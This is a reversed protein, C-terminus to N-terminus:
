NASGANFASGLWDDHQSWTLVDSVQLLMSEVDRKPAEARDDLLSYLHFGNAESLDGFKAYTANVRNWNTEASIPEVVSETAPLFITATHNHGSKGALKSEREISLDRDRLTQDVVQVFEDEHVVTPKPRLGGIAQAAQVSASAVRWICEGLNNQDADATIGSKAIRVDWTLSAQSLVAKLAKRDSVTGLREFQGEGLDSVEFHGGLDSVWIVVADGDPYELPTLCGVRGKVDNALLECEIEGDVYALLSNRIIQPDTM